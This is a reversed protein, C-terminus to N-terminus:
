HVVKDNMTKKPYGGSLSGKGVDPRKPLGQKQAWWHNVKRKIGSHSCIGAFM